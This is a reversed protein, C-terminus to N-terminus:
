CALVPIRFAVENRELDFKLAVTLGLAVVSRLPTGMEVVSHGDRTDVSQPGNQKAPINVHFCPCSSLQQPFM